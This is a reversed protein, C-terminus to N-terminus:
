ARPGHRTARQLVSRWVQRQTEAHASGRGSDLCIADYFGAVLLLEHLHVDAVTVPAPALENYADVLLRLGDGVRFPKKVGRTVIALDYAPDGIVAEGWDLVAVGDGELELRLNQGLLDGHLLSAPTAPPLHDRVWAETARAEPEDIERLEEAWALVHDRRTLHGPISARLPEPDIAHIAAAVRAVIEWPRFRTSRESSFEIQFGALWEQVAALGAETEFEGLPAPVKFSLHQTSLYRLVAAENRIDEDRDTEAERAPLKVVVRRAGRSGLRVEADFVRSSLGEGISRVWGIADRDPRVGERELFEGLVLKADAWNARRARHRQPEDDSVEIPAGRENDESPVGVAHGRRM